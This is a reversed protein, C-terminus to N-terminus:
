DIEAGCVSCGWVEGRIHLNRYNLAVKRGNDFCPQCLYHLPETSRPESDGNQGQTLNVRYALNGPTVEVLSYRGRERASEELKRVKECAEFHEGQLQLLATNHALLGEQAKLLQDLLASTRENILTSDRLASMGKAIDRAASISATIGGIATWDMKRDVREPFPQTPAGMTARLLTPTKKENIALFWMSSAQTM